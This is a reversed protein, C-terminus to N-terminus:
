GDPLHKTCPRCVCSGNPFRPKQLFVRGLVAERSFRRLFFPLDSSTFRAHRDYEDRLLDVAAPLHLARRLMPSPGRLGEPLVCHAGLRGDSEERSPGGLNWVMSMVRMLM